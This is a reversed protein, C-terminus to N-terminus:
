SNKSQKLDQFGGMFIGEGDASEIFAIIAMQLSRSSLYGPHNSWVDADAQNTQKKLCFIGVGTGLLAERVSPTLVMDKCEWSGRRKSGAHPFPLYM